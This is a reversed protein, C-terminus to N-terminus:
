AAKKLKERAIPDDYIDDNSAEVFNIPNKERDDRAAVRLAARNVMRMADKVKPTLMMRLLIANNSLDEYTKFHTPMESTDPKFNSSDVAQETPLKETSFHPTEM